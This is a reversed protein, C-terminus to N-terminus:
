QALWAALTGPEPLKDDLSLRQSAHATRYAAEVWSTDFKGATNVLCLEGPAALAAAAPLGGALRLGPACADWYYSDDDASNFGNADVLTRRVGTAQARALLATSTGFKLSALSAHQVRKQGLAWGLATLVDQVRECIAPKNYGLDHNRLRARKGFLANAEFTDLVLAASGAALSVFDSFASDAAAGARAVVTGSGTAARADAGAGDEDPRGIAAPGAVRRRARSNPM